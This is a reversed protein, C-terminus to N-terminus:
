QVAECEAVKAEYFEDTLLGDEYLLKLQRLRGAVQQKSFAPKRSADAAALTVPKTASNTAAVSTTTATVAPRARPVRRAPPQFNAAAVLVQFDDAPVLHRWLFAQMRDEAAVALRTVERGEIKATGAINLSVPEPTSALTTRLNLRAVQQTGTLTVPSTAFGAPADKLDVKIPGDFGDKRFLQVNVTASSRSRLALSSPVIRLEFDPEPPGIRLRYGYEDGANRATDAIQIFYEGDAPLRVRLYSDAHHTNAGATADERDDNFALLKGSADTLRIVSDLPSDLKRAAVEVVLGEGAKGSFQFVDTDGPKGIRGNIMMPLTVKQARTTANNPEVELTEPLTDIVFPLPNSVLGDRSTTTLYHIGPSADAPPGSIETASLNCGGIKVKAVTGAQGGLPFHSTVFPLEGITIRYVFDERGRYIADYISLVYEGSEPVKFCITPDPKFRFDDDYAVEKGKADHLALVPQFWGPVADAIFPILQRALTTIVLSQGKEAAFRYQNLEGSAVQGNLACPITIRKEMEAAPRNRLASAEKGLIQLQATVMPKRCTEPLQGVHFVVPNSIGRPTALRLERRGPTADAALTLEVYVIAALAASAPRNVTEGLRRELRPILQSPSTGHGEAGSGAGEAGSSMMMQDAAMMVMTDPEPKDTPKAASAGKGVAKERAAAARRLDRLQEGLLTTEQNGLPRDYRVIKGRVGDGTVIVRDVDDMGQGGLKLQVTTGQQGGAPYAFGIYPRVQARASVGLGLLVAAFILIRRM